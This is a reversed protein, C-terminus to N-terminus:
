GPPTVPAPHLALVAATASKARQEIEAPTPADSLRLLLAMQWDGWLLAFFGGTITEIDSAAILGRAAARSLLDILAARTPRRGDQDLRRALDPAREAEAIALRIVAIVAPNSGETLLSIGFQTLTEALERRDGVEPLALPARMRAARGGIMAALIGEKSAFLAYLDRKSVRARRAIERTNAGAYGREMLVDFTAEIIRARVNDTAGEDGERAEGVCDARDATMMAEQCHYWM